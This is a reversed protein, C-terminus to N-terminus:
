EETKKEVKSVKEYCPMSGNKHKLLSLAEKETVVITNNGDPLIVGNPYNSLIKPPIFIPRKDIYKLTVSGM